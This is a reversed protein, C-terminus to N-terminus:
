HYDFPVKVKLIKYSPMEALLTHDSPLHFAPQIKLASRKDFVFILERGRWSPDITGSKLFLTLADKKERVFPTTFPHAIWPYADTYITSLYPILEINGILLTQNTSQQNLLKLIDRQEQTLYSTSATTSRFSSQSYIWSANDSFFFTIFLVVFIKQINSQTSREFLWHLAPIGLLFLATWIYGRAFHIPQMPKMILEHNALGFAVLFWVLFLRNNNNKLFLLSDNKCINFLALLGVLCYAPLMSFFRLRWNLSYQQSVSRHEPSQNLFFLYYYLHFILVVSVGALFWRPIERNRFIFKEFLSWPIVILLLEIGTFPHSVSLLASAVFAVLWKQKLLGYIVSLFLFHYWSECSFFLSRGLNLGWWGVAPDLFFVSHVKATGYYLQTFFGAVTLLGGGWAFLWISIIRYKRTSVIHDYIAIILKFCLLSCLFTFPILIWGPPIGAKLLGAFLLTQIQFYIPRYNDADNFPNSYLISTKDTDLYQKAYAIYSINDHQIFGTPHLSTDHNLLYAIFFFCMPLTLMLAFLWNKGKQNM